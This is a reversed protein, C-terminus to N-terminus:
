GARRAPSAARVGAARLIAPIESELGIAMVHVGQCSGKLEAIVKAALAVGEEVANGAAGANQMAAVM